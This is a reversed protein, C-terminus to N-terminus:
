ASVRARPLRVLKAAAVGCVVVGPCLAVALGTTAGLASVLWGGGVAGVAQGAMLLAELLAFVSARNDAPLRQGVVTVCPVTMASSVGLMAYCGGLAAIGLLGGGARLVLVVAIASPVLGMWAAALVLRRQQGEAPAAVGAGVTCVSLVVLLTAALAGAGGTSPRFAHALVVAMSEAAALGAAAATVMVAPWFLYRDRRLTRQGASLRRWAGPGGGDEAADTRARVRVAAVLAASVLFSAVDATIAARTGAIALLLGGAASGLLTGVPLTAQSLSQAAGYNDGSIQPLQAGRAASFPFTACHAAFVVAVMAAFPLPIVVVAAYCAARVVDCTIMVDRYPVRDAVTALLPGIGFAPAFAAASIIAVAVPSHTRSLTLVGLGLVAAADGIVSLLDSLWMLRVDRMRLPRALREARNGALAVVSALTV